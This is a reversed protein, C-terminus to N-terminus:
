LRLDLSGAQASDPCPLNRASNHAHFFCSSLAAFHANYSVPTPHENAANQCKRMRDYHSYAYSTPLLCLNVILSSMSIFSLLDRDYIALDKVVVSFDFVPRFIWLTYAKLHINLDNLYSLMPADFSRQPILWMGSITLPSHKLWGKRLSPEKCIPL